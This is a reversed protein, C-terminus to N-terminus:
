SDCGDDRDVAKIRKRQVVLDAFTETGCNQTAIQVGSLLYRGGPVQRFIQFYGTKRDEAGIGPQKGLTVEFTSDSRSGENRCGQRTLESM